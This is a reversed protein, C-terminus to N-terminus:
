GTDERNLGEKATQIGKQRTLVQPLVLLPVLFLVFVGRCKGKLM